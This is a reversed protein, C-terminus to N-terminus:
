KAYFRTHKPTNENLYGQIKLRKADLDNISVNEKYPIFVDPTTTEVRKLGLDVKTIVKRSRFKKLPNKNRRKGKKRQPNM